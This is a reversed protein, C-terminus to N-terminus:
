DKIYDTNKIMCSAELFEASDCDVIVVVHPHASHENLFKILPEAAKEFEKIQEKTLIM